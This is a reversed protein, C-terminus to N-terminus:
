IKFDRSMFVLGNRMIQRGLSMNQEGRSLKSKQRSMVREGKTMFSRTEVISLIFYIVYNYFISLSPYVVDVVPAATPTGKRLCFFPSFLDGRELCITM